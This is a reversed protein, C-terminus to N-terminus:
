EKQPPIETASGLEEETDRVPWILLAETKKVM